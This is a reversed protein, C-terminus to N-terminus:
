LSDANTDGETALHVALGAEVDVGAQEGVGSNWHGIEGRAAGLNVTGDEFRPTLQQATAVSGMFSSILLLCTFNQLQQRM